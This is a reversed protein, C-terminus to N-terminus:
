RVGANSQAGLVCASQRRLEFIWRLFNVLHRRGAVCSVLRLPNGAVDWSASNNPLDHHFLDTEGFTTFRGKSGFACQPFGPLDPALVHYRDALAPILERFMHSSTPFGHLLLLAPADASGAERFFVNLDDLGVTRYYTIM